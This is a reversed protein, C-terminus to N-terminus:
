SPRVCLDREQVFDYMTLGLLHAYEHQAVVSLLINKSNWEDPDGPGYQVLGQNLTDFKVWVHRYTEVSKGPFSLCGERYPLFTSSRDVLTPNILVSRHSGVALVAVAADIGIQPAALGVCGTQDHRRARKNYVEVTRWLKRAIEGGQSLSVKQCVTRPLKNGRVIM